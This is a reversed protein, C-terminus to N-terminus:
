CNLEAIFITVVNSNRSEYTGDTHRVTLDLQGSYGTIVTDTAGAPATFGTYSNAIYIATALEPHANTWNVYTQYEPFPNGDVCVSFDQAYNLTPANYIYYADVMTQYNQCRNDPYLGISPTLIFDTYNRWTVIRHDPLQSTTPAGFSGRWKFTGADVEARLMLGDLLQNSAPM